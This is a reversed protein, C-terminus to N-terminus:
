MLGMVELDGGSKAHMVMKILAVASIKVRKFHNPSFFSYFLQHFLYEKLWPRQEMLRDVEAEEFNYLEEEIVENEFEFMKKMM